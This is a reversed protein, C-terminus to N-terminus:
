LPDLNEVVPFSYLVDGRSDFVALGYSLRVSLGVSLGGRFTDPLYGGGVSEGKMVVLALVFKYFDRESAVSARPFKTRWLASTRGERM